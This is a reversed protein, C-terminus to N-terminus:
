LCIFPVHFLFFILMFLFPTFSFLVSFGNWKVGNIWSSVEVPFSRAEEGSPAYIREEISFCGFNHLYHLILWGM